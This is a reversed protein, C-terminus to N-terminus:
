PPGRGKPVLSTEGGASSTVDPTGRLRFWSVAVPEVCRDEELYGPSLGVELSETSVM